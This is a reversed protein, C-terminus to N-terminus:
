VQYMCMSQMVMFSARLCRHPLPGSGARRSGGIALVAEAAAYYRGLVLLCDHQTEASNCNANKCRRKCAKNCRQSGRKRCAVVDAHIGALHAIM